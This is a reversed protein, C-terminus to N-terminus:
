ALKFLHEANSWMFAEIIDSSLPLERMQRILVSPAPSSPWDSGWIVRDAVRDIEPFYQMIRKPPIGSLEMWVNRRM